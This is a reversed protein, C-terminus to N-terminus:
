LTYCRSCKNPLHNGGKRLEIGENLVAVSLRTAGNELLVIAVDLAGHGYADAKVVGFIEKSLAKARINRMNYTLNDLNVEARIINPCRCYKSCDSNYISMGRFWYIRFLYSLVDYIIWCHIWKSSLDVAWDYDATDLASKSPDDLVKKAYRM